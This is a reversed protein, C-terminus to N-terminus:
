KHQVQLQDQMGCSKELFPQFTLRDSLMVVAMTFHYEKIGYYM